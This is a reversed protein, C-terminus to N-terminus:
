SDAKGLVGFEVPTKAYFIHFQEHSLREFLADVEEATAVITVRWRELTLQPHEAVPAVSYVSM